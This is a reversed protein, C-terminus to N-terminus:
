TFLESVIKIRCKYEAYVQSGIHTDNNSEEWYWELTYINSSNKPVIVDQLILDKIDVWTDKDGVVYINDLKLRYKMNINLDNVEEAMISYKIKENITNSIVFEYSGKSMLVVIKENNFEPNNFIDLDEIKDWSINNQTIELTNIPTPNSVEYGIKGIRYIIIYFILILLLILIIIILVIKKVQEEKTKVQEGEQM